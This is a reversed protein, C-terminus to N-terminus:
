MIKAVIIIQWDPRNGSKRFAEIIKLRKAIKRKNMISKTTLNEEKLRISEADLDISKLLEDIAEAGIMAKFTDPFELEM